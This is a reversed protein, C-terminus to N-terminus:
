NRITATWDRGSNCVRNAHKRLPMQFCQLYRCIITWLFLFSCKTSAKDPEVTPMKQAIQSIDSIEGSGVWRGFLDAVPLKRMLAGM